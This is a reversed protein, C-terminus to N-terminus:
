NRRLGLLADMTAQDAAPFEYQDFDSSRIWRFDQVRGRRPIQGEAITAAYLALTVEYDPYVTHRESLQSGVVADVSLRERLERALAEADSEGPEVRGGPFEWLGGLVAEARRQTILYLGGEEVVAAVVRIVKREM